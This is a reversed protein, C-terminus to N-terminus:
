KLCSLEKISTFRFESLLRGLRDGTRHLNHYHRLRKQLSIAVRPQDPDFEWPHVYLNLLRGERRVSRLLFQILPFPLLRLYAGGACPVRMSGFRAVTLPVEMLTEGIRWPDVPADPMGYVPHGRMPYVSSSYRLGRSELIPIVWRTAETLTFSPARYGLVEGSLQQAHVELAADLDRSFEDPTMEILSGHNYGHTAVEHGRNHIEAALGPTREMVWGLMFFTARAEHTDLMDLLYRTSAEARREYTEWDKRLLPPNLNHVCFWEEVDISLTGDIDGQSGKKTNNTM